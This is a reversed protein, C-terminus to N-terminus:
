YSAAASQMFNFVPRTIRTASNISWAGGVGYTHIGFVCPACDKRTWVGYVPSGSQGGYTDISYFLRRKRAQAIQGSMMWQTAAEAGYKDGPYGSLTVPKGVYFQNRATYEYGFYGVTEGIPEALRIVGYDHRAGQTNIWKQRVNWNLAAVSGFPALAGDRGPYATIRQAWGGLGAYYLCHAATAVTDAGNMWGSCLVSGYPFDIELQVMASYPFIATNAVRTRGDPGIISDPSANASVALANAQATFQLLQRPPVTENVLQRADITVSKSPAYARTSNKIEIVRGDNRVLADGAIPKQAFASPAAFFLPLFVFALAITQRLIPFRSIM